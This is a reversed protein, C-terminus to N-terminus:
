RSGNRKPKRFKILFIQLFFFIWDTQHHKIEAPHISAAIVYVWIFLEGYVFSAACCRPMSDRGTQEEYAADDRSSPM